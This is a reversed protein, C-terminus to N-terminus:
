NTLEKSLPLYVTTMVMNNSLSAEQINQPDILTKTAAQVACTSFALKQVGSFQSSLQLLLDTATAMLACVM